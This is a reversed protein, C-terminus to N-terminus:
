APYKESRLLSWEEENETQKYFDKVGDCM